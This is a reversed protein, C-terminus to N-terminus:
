QKLKERWTLPRVFIIVEGPKPSATTKGCTKPTVIGQELVKKTPPAMRALWSYNPTRPQCLVYGANIGISDIYKM